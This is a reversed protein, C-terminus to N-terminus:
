KPKLVMTLELRKMNAASFGRATYTKWGEPVTPYIQAALVSPYVVFRAGPREMYAHVEGEQLETMFGKIHKRFYWVLSPDRYGVAGFEMDARLAGRSKRMLELSPLHRGAFPSACAILLGVCGALIATRRVFRDANPREALSKALLLALLPFAPLTYHPLKTKVFTFIVFIVGAGVLLYNDVPDRQRWLRVLARPLSFAWPFFTLFITVFYFPLTAFYM